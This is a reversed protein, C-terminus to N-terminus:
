ALAVVFLLGLGFFFFFPVLFFTLLPELSFM